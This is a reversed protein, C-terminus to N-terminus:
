GNLGQEITQYAQQCAQFQESSIIANGFKLYEHTYLLMKYSDAQPFQDVKRAYDGDTLSEDNPVLQTEQLREIMAMYLARSAEGYNRQQQFEQAIKLWESVSHHEAVSIPRNASIMNAGNLTPWYAMLFRFILGVCVSVLIAVICWFLVETWWSPLAWNPLNLGDPPELQWHRMQLM